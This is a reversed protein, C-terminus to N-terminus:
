ACGGLEWATFFTQLDAGDIGGDRNVDAADQAAEWALFFSEIDAGDVGGDRNFDAPCPTPCGYSGCFLPVQAVASRAIGGQAAPDAIFWQLYITQPAPFTEPTLPWHVTGVGTTGAPTLTALIIDQSIQGNVPPQDSYALWATVGPRASDLGVRYEANGIMSPSQVIIRPTGNLGPRAGGILTARHDPRDVFLTPKDFPFTEAAVRPDTLGNRLFDEIVVAAQPPVNVLTMLPDRNDPFQPAAGPARAYFRIVDTLNQFQGNHMFTRKLGVNRLSPVKFRGRDNINGTVLQRGPDESVPRLGINRFSQDTYLPDRHCDICRSATFAQLGQQQAPTLATVDGATFRDWPTQDSVLTRQYTALAFAIRRTTIAGDGFARRFLEPYDPQDALASAVDAPINTALDLPRVRALKDTLSTWDFDDHSMEVSSLPPQVAQSELAGGSVIAVQGTQPDTFRSTARGDWFLSPAYGANIPSNASRNTIQPQLAFIPDPLYDNNEDSRIVGPSGLIDDPTNLIGDIGPHRAIRDDAGARSPVHCTGCSVVNSTSLQEDWFLAKGLVRKAETIPNEPPQPVPPLSGVAIYAGILLGGITIPLGAFLGAIAARSPLIIAPSPM